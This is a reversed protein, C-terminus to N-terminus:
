ALPKIWPYRVFVQTFGIKLYFPQDSGVYAVTAGEAACRRIGELVAAKGLGMRRYDPDTAVPEVYAIRNVPEYWLGAFAAYNGDPAEVVITLDKRFNPGSQMRRRGDMMDDDTPPEGDHDFGRWMVRNVKYLDNEDALSKVRYGEPVSIAPFREPVIFASMPDFTSPDKAFGHDRAAAELETEFEPIWAVVRRVGEPSTSCLHAEAHALMEPYLHKYAPHIQFNASSPRLEYNVVGVIQGDDEWIGIRGAASDDFIGHTLAYEWRPQPWNTFRHGSPHTAMLFDSIRQFDDPAGYARKHVTM